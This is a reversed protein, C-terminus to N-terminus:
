FRGYKNDELMSPKWFGRPRLNSDNFGGYFAMGYANNLNARYAPDAAYPMGFRQNMDAGGRMLLLAGGGVVAAGILLWKM